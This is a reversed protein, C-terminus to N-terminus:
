RVEGGKEERLRGGEERGRGEERGEGGERKREPTVVGLEVRVDDVGEGGGEWDEM